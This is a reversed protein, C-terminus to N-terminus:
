RNHFKREAEAKFDNLMNPFYLNIAKKVIRGAVLRPLRVSVVYQGEVTNGTERLRWEGSLFSFFGDKQEFTILNESVGCTEITYEFSFFAVKAKFSVESASESKVIVEASRISSIFSPYNATDLLVKNVTDLDCNFVISREVTIQNPM